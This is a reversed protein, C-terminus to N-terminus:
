ISIVTFGACMANIIQTLLQVTLVQTLKTEPYAFGCNLYIQM